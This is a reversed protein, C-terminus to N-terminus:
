KSDKQCLLILGLWYAPALAIAPVMFPFYFKPDVYNFLLFFVIGFFCFVTLALAQWKKLQKKHLLIFCLWPMILYLLSRGLTRYFENFNYNPFFDDAKRRTNMWNKLEDSFHYSSYSDWLMFGTCIIFPILIFRNFVSLGPWLKKILGVFGLAFVLTAVILLGYRFREEAARELLRSTTEPVGLMLPPAILMGLAFFLFGNTQFLRQGAIAWGLLLSVLGFLLSAVLYSNFTYATNLYPSFISLITSYPMIALLVSIIIRPIKINM